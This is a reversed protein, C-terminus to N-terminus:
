KAYHLLTGLKTKGFREIAYFDLYYFEDLFVEKFGKTNTLKQLGDIFGDKIYYHEYKKKTDIFENITKELPLDRKNCWNAFGIVGELIEGLETIIFFNEKLFM